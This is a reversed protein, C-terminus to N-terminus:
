EPFFCQVGQAEVARRLAIRCATTEGPTLSVFPPEGNVNCNASVSDIIATAGTQTLVFIFTEDAICQQVPVAGSAIDNFLQLTAGCPCTATLCPPPMGTKKEYNRRVAACAEDSARKNPDDCDMAECFATCLGKAAGKQTDCVTEQSPTQKDPTKASANGAGVIAAGVLVLTWVSNRM